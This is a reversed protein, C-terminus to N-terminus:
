CRALSNPPSNRSVLASGPVRRSSLIGELDTNSSGLATKCQHEYVQIKRRSGASRPNASFGCHMACSMGQATQHRLRTASDRRKVPIVRQRPFLKAERRFLVWSEFGRRLVALKAILYLLM